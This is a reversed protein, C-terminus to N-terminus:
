QSGGAALKRRNLMELVARNARVRRDAHDKMRHEPKNRFTILRGPLDVDSWELYLMEGIRSGTNAAFLIM